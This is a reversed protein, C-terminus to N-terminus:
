VQGSVDLPVTITFRAGSTYTHDHDLSGAIEELEQRSIALGLGTGRAKTTFFPDFAQDAQRGTLGPGDDSVTISVQSDSGGILIDIAKAGAETANRILNRVARAVADADITATGNTEGRLNVEVGAQELAAAESEVLEDILRWPSVTTMEPVRPRSLHLYRGTLAELRGIESTITGLMAKAESGDVEDALLEANLSMANLPNRVEHTIQALMRGVLALRESRMLRKRVALRETVDEGIILTGGEGFPVAVMEYLKGDAEVCEHHGHGLQSLWDPLAAGPEISWLGLAAPNRMEVVGDEVVLLGASITDLVKQLRGQLRELVQAREVLAKDREAVAEAMANFEQALLGMEDQTQLHVRGTLDGAAVRQVQQILSNIPRLSVLALGAMVSAFLLSLVGLIGSIVLARNQARAARRSIQSIQGDVLAQTLDAGAALAQRRRDLDALLQSRLPDADDTHNLWEDVADVYSLTQEDLEDLVSEIRGLVELDDPHSLGTAAADAATRGRTVADDISARYLATNARRAAVNQSGTRAFRDHDRDLQRVLATLEVGVKSMPLFGGNVADLERGIASLQHLGYGVTSAFTILALVFSVLIRHRISRFGM